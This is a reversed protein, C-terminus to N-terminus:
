EMGATRSFVERLHDLWIDVVDPIEALGQLVASSTIDHDALLSKWSLPQDGAMDKRAHEGAVAMFPVLWAKAVGRKRLEPLLDHIGPKGQITGVFLRPDLRQLVHEMATYVMDAPHAQNGHGVFLVAEDPHRDPPLHRLLVEAVRALDEYSSLLPRAVCLRQFGKVMKSFLRANHHFDHFERGPFVHLSLLAVERHGEDMLRALAIEPSDLLTGRDALKRRVIKSTYAWRIQAGPFASRAREDIRTFAERAEPITTGFAVLLIVPQQIERHEDTMENM